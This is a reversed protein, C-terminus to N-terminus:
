FCVCNTLILPFLFKSDESKKKTVKDKKKKDGTKGVVKSKPKTMKKNKKADKSKETTKTAKKGKDGGGGGSCCGYMSFAAICLFLLVNLLVPAFYNPLMEYDFRFKLQINLPKYVRQNGENFM